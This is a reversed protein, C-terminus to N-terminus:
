QARPPFALRMEAIEMRQLGAQVCPDASAFARAAAEDEAALVAIGYVGRPDFVPGAFLCVGREFLGRLYKAHADMTASEAATIDEAFSPRPPILRVLWNKM